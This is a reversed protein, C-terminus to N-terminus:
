KLSYVDGVESIELSYLYKFLPQKFPILDFGEKARAENIKRLVWADLVGSDSSLLLWPESCTYRSNFSYEGVYQYRELSLVSFVWTEHLEPIAAIEAAAIPGSTPSIWFRRNNSINLLTANATAASVGLISHDTAMPMNIWFDVDLMLPVPLYSKGEEQIRKDLSGFHTFFFTFFDRSPLASEYYWANEWYKGSDLPMVTIGDFDMRGSSIPPLIGAERLKHAELDIIFIDQDAFGREKLEAIVARLLPLPTALGPGSQTFVKIGVKGKQGPSLKKQYQDEFRGFLRYIAKKYSLFDYDDLRERDVIEPLVSPFADVEGYLLSIHFFLVFLVFQFKNLGM